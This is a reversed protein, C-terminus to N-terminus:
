AGRQWGEVKLCTHIELKPLVAKLLGNEWSIEAIAGGPEWTVEQPRRACRIWCTIPGLPPIEDVFLDNTLAHSLDRGPNGNILHVLLTNGRQRLAVEVYSFADSRFFPAPDLLDLIERVWALIDPYGFKWYRDFLNCPVHVAMGDGLRRVTAAPFGAKEPHKEDVEGATSWAKPLDKTQADYSSLFAPYLEKADRLELQDWPANVGVPSGDKLFAHAEDVAGQKVLAVGLLKQFEGSRISSGTSLLKGGRRVFAELKAVTEANLNDQDPVVILDYTMSETLGRDDILDPSRHLGILASGAGWLSDGFWSRIRFDPSLGLIATWGVSRTHLCVHARERAFDAAKKALRMRSPVLAGSPMPFTWYTWQGGNAIIGIGEQLIRDLSKTRPRMDFTHYIQTDCIWAEYPIGVTTYRRMGLSQQIRHSSPTYWDGSCWDRNELFEKSVTVNGFSCLVAPNLTRVLGLWHSRFECQVKSWYRVWDAGEPVDGKFGTERRYRGVCRHCYCPGVLTGDVWLGDPSSAAFAERLQVAVWEDFFASQPCIAYPALDPGWASFTRIPKGDSDLCRWDPYREAAVTDELGSWYLFFRTGTERTLARFFPLVEASLRPHESHLSSRFSTHGSEGKAYIVIFGPRLDKLIPSYNESTYGTGYPISSIWDTGWYDVALNFLTGAFWEKATALDAFSGPNALEGARLSANLSGAALLRGTRSTNGLTLGAGIQATRSIFQRRNM